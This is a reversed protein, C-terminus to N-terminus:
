WPTAANPPLPLTFLPIVQRQVDLLHVARQEPSVVSIKLLRGDASFAIPGAFRGLGSLFAQQKGTTADWLEVGGIVAIALLNGAPAFQLPAWHRGRRASDPRSGNSGDAVRVSLRLRPCHAPTLRSSIGTPRFPSVTRASETRRKSSDSRHDNPGASRTQADLALSHGLKSAKSEELVLLSGRGDFAVANAVGNPLPIRLRSECTKANYIEVKGPAAVVLEKGDRSLCATPAAASLGGLSRDRLCPRPHTSSVDWIQLCDQASKTCHRAIAVRSQRRPPLRLPVPQIQGPSTGTSRRGNRRSPRTGSTSWETAPRRSLGRETPRIPSAGTPGVAVGAGESETCATRM